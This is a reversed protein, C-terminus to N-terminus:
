NNSFRYNIAEIALFTNDKDLNRFTDFITQKNNSGNYLQFALLILTKSSSCLGISVRSKIGQNKFDYLKEVSKFLEENGAIVYFLSEREIDGEYVNAKKLLNKYNSQHNENLFKM